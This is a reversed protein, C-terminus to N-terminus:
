EVGLCTACVRGQICLCGSWLASSGRLIHLAGPSICISRTESRQDNFQNKAWTQTRFAWKNGIQRMGQLAPVSAASSYVSTSLIPEAPIVLSIWVGIGGLYPRAPFCDAIGWTPCSLEVRPRGLSSPVIGLFTHLGSNPFVAEACPM